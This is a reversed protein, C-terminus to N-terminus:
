ESLSRITEQVLWHRAWSTWAVHSVTVLDPGPCCRSVEARYEHGRMLLL